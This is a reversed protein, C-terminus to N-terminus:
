RTHPFHKEDIDILIYRKEIIDHSGRRPNLLASSGNSIRRVDVSNTHSDFLSFKSLFAQNKGRAPKNVDSKWFCYCVFMFQM